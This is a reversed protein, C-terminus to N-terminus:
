PGLAVPHDDDLRQGVPEGDDRGRDAAYWLRESPRRDAGEGPEQHWRIVGEGKRTGQPCPEVVRAQTLPEALEDVPTARGQAAPVGGDRVERGHEVPDLRGRRM